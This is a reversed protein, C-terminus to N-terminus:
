LPVRQSVNLLRHVLQTYSPPYGGDRASLRWRETSMMHVSFFKLHIAASEQAVTLFATSISEGNSVPVTRPCGRSTPHAPFSASGAPARYRRVARSAPNQRTVPPGLSALGSLAGEMEYM